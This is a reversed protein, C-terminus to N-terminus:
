LNLEEITPEMHLFIVLADRLDGGIIEMHSLIKPSLQRLLGPDNRSSYRVFAKVSAGEAVL